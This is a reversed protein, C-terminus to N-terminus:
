KAESATDDYAAAEAQAGPHGQERLKDYVEKPMYTEDHKALVSDAVFVGSANLSGEAIVGQGERFLDPLLGSYTVPLDNNADAVRFEVTAETASERLSGDAVLGGLRFREGAAPRDAVVDSPVRFYLMAQGLGTFVLWAALGLVALSATLLVLRQRKRTYPRHGSLRSM